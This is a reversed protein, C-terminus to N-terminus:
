TAMCDELSVGQIKDLKNKLDFANFPMYDKKLYYKLCPQLNSIMKTRTKTSTHKYYKFYYIVVLAPQHCTEISLPILHVSGAVV